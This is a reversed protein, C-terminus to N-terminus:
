ISIKNFSSLSHYNHDKDNKDKKDKKDKDDKVNSIKNESLKYKKLKQNISYNVRSINKKFYNNFLLKFEDEKM